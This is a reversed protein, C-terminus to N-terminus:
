AQLIVPLYLVVLTTATLAAIGIVDCVFERTM